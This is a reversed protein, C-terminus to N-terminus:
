RAMAIQNIQKLNTITMAQAHPDISLWKRAMLKDLITAVEEASLQTLDAMDKYPIFLLETGYNLALNVLVNALRVAPLQQRLQSAQNALRVRKVMLRLMQLCTQSDKALFEMFVPAPISFVSVASFALVDTSRPSEDLVAMEGFFDGKSLIALTRPAQNAGISRVKLWGAMVFYVANGWADEMLVAQGPPFQYSHARSALWDLTARDTAQFLSFAALDQGQM